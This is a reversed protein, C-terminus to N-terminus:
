KKKNKKRNNKKNSKNKNTENQHVNTTETTDFNQKKENDENKDVNEQNKVENELVNIENNRFTNIDQNQIQSKGLMEPTEVENNLVLTHLDTKHVKASEKIDNKEHENNKYEELPEKIIKNQEKDDKRNKEFQDNIKNESNISIHKDINIDGNIKNSYYQLEELKSNNQEDKSSYIDKEEKKIDNSKTLEIQIVEEKNVEIIETEQKKYEYFPEIIETDQKIYANTPEIVDQFEEIQEIQEIQENKKNLLNIDENIDQELPEKHEKFDHTENEKNNNKKEDVCKDDNKNEEKETIVFSSMKFSNSFLPIKWENKVGDNLSKPRKENKVDDNLLKLRKENKVGDNLLKLRKENKVDDNQKEDNKVGVNEKEDNKVDVNKVGVNEKEDNKVDVNKVGVNEKEDNKVDVNEKEEINNVNTKMFDGEKTMFVDEKLVKFKSKEFLHDNRSEYLMNTVNKLHNLNEAKTQTSCIKKNNVFDNFCINEGDNIINSNRTSNFNNLTVNNIQVLETNKIKELNYTKENPIISSINDMISKNNSFADKNQHIDKVKDNINHDYNNNLLEKKGIHQKNENLLKNDEIIHNANNTCIENNNNNNNNNNSNNGNTNLNHEIKKSPSIMRDDNIYFNDEVHKMIKLGDSINTTNYEKNMHEDENNNNKSTLSYKKQVDSNENKKINFSSNSPVKEQTTSNNSNNDNNNINNNNHKKKEDYKTIINNSSKEKRLNEFFYKRQKFITNSNTEYINQNNTNVEISVNAKNNSSVVNENTHKKETAKDINLNDKFSDKTLNDKNASKIHNINKVNDGNNYNYNNNNNHINNMNNDKIINDKQSAGGNLPDQINNDNHENYNDENNNNNNNINVRIPINKNEQEVVNTKDVQLNDQNKEYIQETHDYESKKMNLFTTFNNSIISNSLINKEKQENKQHVEDISINEMYSKNVSHKFEEIDKKDLRKWYPESNFTKIKKTNKNNQQKQEKYIDDKHEKINLFTNNSFFINKTSPSSTLHDYTNSKNNNNNNNDNNDNNNNNYNKNQQEKNDRNSTVNNTFNLFFPFKQSYEMKKNKEELYKTAEQLPNTFINSNTHENNIEKDQSKKMTQIDKEKINKEENFINNNQFIDKEIFTKSNLLNTTNFNHCNNIKDFVHHKNLSTDINHEKEKSTVLFNNKNINDKAQETKINIENKMNDMNDNKSKINDNKSKINDNKSKINDNKSKINDNKSKITDNKSKITDNKSKITDNKSKITDNKSKIDDKKIEMNDDKSKISDKKIEMNDNKSKIDDKKIEMNDDKRKISDKKIEMNDDKSKISDKKIEMNDDKSKIDMIQQDQKNKLFVSFVDKQMKKTDENINLNNNTHTIFDNGHQINKKINLDEIQNEEKKEQQIEENLNTVYNNIQEQKTIDYTLGIKYNEIKIKEETKNQNEKQLPMTIINTYLNNLTFNNEMIENAQNNKTDKKINDKRQVNINKEIFNEIICNQENNSSLSTNLVNNKKLNEEKQKIVMLPKEEKEYMNVYTDKNISKNMNNSNLIFSATNDSSLPNTKNFLNDDQLETTNMKNKSVHYNNQHLNPNNYYVQTLENNNNNNYNNNNNNNNNNDNRKNNNDVIEKNQNNKRHDNQIMNYSKDNSNSSKKNQDYNKNEKEKKKEYKNISSHIFSLDQQMSNSSMSHNVNKKNTKVNLMNINSTNILKSKDYGEYNNNSSKDQIYKAYIEDDSSYDTKKEICIYKKNKYHTLYYKYEKNCTNLQNKELDIQLSLLKGENKKDKEENTNDIAIKLEKLQKEIYGKKKKKLCTYTISVFLEMVLLPFTSYLVTSLFAHEFVKSIYEIYIVNYFCLSISTLVLSLILIYLVLSKITNVILGYLSVVCLILFVVFLLINNYMYLLICLVTKIGLVFVLFTFTIRSWDRQKNFLFRNNEAVEIDYKNKEM